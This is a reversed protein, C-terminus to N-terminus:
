SIIRIIFNSEFSIHYMFTIRVGSNDKNQDIIFRGTVPKRDETNPFGQGSVPLFPVQEEKQARVAVPTRCAKGTSQRARLQQANGLFTSKSSMVNAM